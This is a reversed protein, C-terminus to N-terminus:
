STATRGANDVVLDHYNTHAGSAVSSAASLREGVLAALDDAGQSRSLEALLNSLQPLDLTAASATISAAVANTQTGLLEAPM